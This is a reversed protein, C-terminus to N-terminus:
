CWSRQPRHRKHPMVGKSSDIASQRIAPETHAGSAAHELVAPTPDAMLFVDLDIWRVPVDVSGCRTAGRRPSAGRLRISKCTCASQRFSATSLYTCTRLCALLVSHQAGSTCVDFALHVQEHDFPNRCQASCSPMFHRVHLM